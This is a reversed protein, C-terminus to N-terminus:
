DVGEMAGAQSAATAVVAPRTQTGIVAGAVVSREEYVRVAIADLSVEGFLSEARIRNGGTPPREIREPERYLPNVPLTGVEITLMPDFATNLEFPGYGRPNCVIRTGEEVYDCSDHTHGHIWVAIPPGMLRSLDSAFGPNLTSGRYKHHISRPHPLHHSVVITPGPFNDRVRYM